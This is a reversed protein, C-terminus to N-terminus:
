MMCTSVVGLVKFKEFYVQAFRKKLSGFTSLFLKCIFQGNECLFADFATNYYTIYFFRSIPDFSFLYLNNSVYFSHM